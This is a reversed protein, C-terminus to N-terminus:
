PSPSHLQELFIVISELASWVNIGNHKSQGGGEWCKQSTGPGSARTDQHIIYGGLRWWCELSHGHAAIAVFCHWEKDPKSVLIIPRTPQYASLVPYSNSRTPRWKRFWVQDKLFSHELYCPLDVCVHSGSQIVERAIVM